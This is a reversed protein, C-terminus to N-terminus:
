MLGLGFEKSADFLTDRNKKITGINGGLLNMDDAYPLLQHTGNLTLEV